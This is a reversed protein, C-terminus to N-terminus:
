DELDTGRQTGLWKGAAALTPFARVELPKPNPPVGVFVARWGADLAGLADQEWSDGVHALASPHWGWREAAARFADPSPKHRGVVGSALIFDFPTRLDLRTLLPELREDWNSLIGLRLGAASLASLTERVGPALRWAAPDLFREWLAAFLPSLSAPDASEGFVAQVLRRWSSRSYDFGGPAAHASRWAFGFRRNLEAESPPSLGLEVAEKHYWYGVSPSVSLLTGGVDFTVARISRRGPRSM